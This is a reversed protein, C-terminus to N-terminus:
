LDTVLATSDSRPQGYLISSCGFFSFTWPDVCNLGERLDAVARKMRKLAEQCTYRVDTVSDEGPTLFWGRPWVPTRAPLTGVHPLAPTPPAM